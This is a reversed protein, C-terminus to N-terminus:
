KLIIDKLFEKGIKKNIEDLLESKKYSLENRLVSSNLKVYLISNIIKNETVYQKLDKGIINKWIELADLTELKNVLKANRMLKKIVFGINSLNNRKM